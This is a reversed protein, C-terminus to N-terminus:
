RGQPSKFSLDIYSDVTRYVVPYPCNTIPLAPNSEPWNKLESDDRFRSYKRTFQKRNLRSIIFAVFLILREM